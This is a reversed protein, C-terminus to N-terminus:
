KLWLLYCGIAVFFLVHKVQPVFNLKQGLQEPASLSAGAHRASNQLSFQM